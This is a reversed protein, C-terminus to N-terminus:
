DITNEQCTEIKYTLAKCSLPHKAEDGQSVLYCDKLKMFENACKDKHVSNFDAVICKGYM